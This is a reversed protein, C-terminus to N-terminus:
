VADVHVGVGIATDGGNNSGMDWWAGLDDGNVESDLVLRWLQTELIVQWILGHGLEDIFDVQLVENGLSHIAIGDSVIEKLGVYVVDVGLDDCTSM